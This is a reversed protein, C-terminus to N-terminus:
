LTAWDSRVVGAGGGLLDSGCPGAGGGWFFGFGFAGKKTRLLGVKKAGKSSSTFDKGKWEWFVSKGQARKMVERKIAEFAIVEKM